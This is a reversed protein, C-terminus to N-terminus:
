SARPARPARLIEHEIAFYCGYASCAIEPLPGGGLQYRAVEGVSGAHPVDLVRHERGKHVIVVAGRADACLAVPEGPLKALRRPRAGDAECTWLEREVSGIWFFNRYASALRVHADLVPDALLALTHVGGSWDLRRLRAVRKGGRLGGKIDERIVMAVGDPTAVADWAAPEVWEGLTRLAGGEHVRVQTAQTSYPAGRVPDPVFPSAMWVARAGEWRPYMPREQAEALVQVAWDARRVLSVRKATMDTVLLAERAAAIECHGGSLEAVRVRQGGADFCVLEPGDCAFVQGLEVALGRPPQHATSGMREIDVGDVEARPPPRLIAELRARDERSRAAIAARLRDAVPLAAKRLRDRSCPAFVLARAAAAGPAGALLATVVAEPGLTDLLTLPLAEEAPYGSWEVTIAELWTLLARAAAAAGGHARALAAAARGWAPNSLTHPLGMPGMLEGLLPALAPPLGALMGRQRVGAAEAQARAARWDERPQTLGREALFDLAREPSALAADSSWGHVRISQGHHLGIATVRAGGGDVLEVAWDGLCMCHFPEGDERIALAEALSRADGAGLELRVASGLPVGDGVGGEIFRVRAARAFLARLGEQTPRTM